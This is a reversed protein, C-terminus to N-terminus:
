ATSMPARSSPRSAHHNTFQRSAVSASKASRFSGPTGAWRIVICRIRATSRAERAPRPGVTASAPDLSRRALPLPTGQDAHWSRSVDARLAHSANIATSVPTDVQGVEFKQQGGVANLQVMQQLQGTNAVACARALREDRRTQDSDIALGLRALRRLDASALHDVAAIGSDGDRHGIDVPGVAGSGDSSRSHLSSTPITASPGRYTDTEVQGPSIETVSIGTGALDHRMADEAQGSDLMRGFVRCADDTSECARKTDEDNVWAFVIV